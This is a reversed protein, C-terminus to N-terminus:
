ENAQKDGGGGGFHLGQSTVWPIWGLSMTGPCLPHSKNVTQQSFANIFSNIEGWIGLFEQQLLVTQLHFKHYAHSM